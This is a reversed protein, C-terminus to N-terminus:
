AQRPGSWIAFASEVLAALSQVQPYNGLMQRTAPDAVESLQGSPGALRVLSRFRAVAAERRGCIAEAAAAWFSPFIFPLCPYPIGDREPRHRAVLPFTGLQGLVHDLTATKRGGEPLPYGVLYAALTASDASGEGFAMTLEGSPGTGRAAVAEELERRAAAWRATGSDEIRGRRALDLARDLAVWALIKSHLHHRRRGRVEWIGHDPQSWGVAAADALRPIRELLEPPCGGAGDLLHAFRCVEGLTDVQAQRAAGNGVRVLAGLYGRLHPLSREPPLPGGNLRRVPQTGRRLLEGLGRALQRAGEVDGGLALAAGADANDRLWAYRYDWARPSGPWQPISTVPSAVLLGTGRHQLAHLLELSTSVAERAWGPAPALRGQASPLVARKWIAVEELLSPVPDMPGPGPDAGVRLTASLGEPPVPIPSGPGAGAPHIDLRLPGGPGSPWPGSPLLAGFPAPRWGDGASPDQLELVAELGPEGSLHWRVAPGGPEGGAVAVELRAREGWRAVLVRGPALWRAEPAGRLRPRIAVSVGQPDLLRALRLPGDFGPPSWFWCRGWGDLLAAGLGDSLCFLSRLQPNSPPRM